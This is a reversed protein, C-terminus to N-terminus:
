LREGFYWDPPPPCTASLCQGGELRFSLRECHLAQRNMRLRERDTETLGGGIFRLFIEPDPGYLKDGVVPFGLSKLTARIQHTRGTDLEARLESVGGSERLLTFRTRCREAGERAETLFRREKRVPSLENPALWGEADAFEPFKGEVLVRYTKERDPEGLARAAAAAAKPTRAAAVVGSTERDLRNVLHLRGYAPELFNWLTHKQYTGAPHVPLGGPKYFFLYDGDELLLRWDRPVEPEEREPPLFGIEDGRRLVAEPLTEEGNLTIRRERVHSEWQERNQYTFRSLLFDILNRGEWEQGPSVSRRRDKVGM